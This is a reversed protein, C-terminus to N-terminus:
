RNQGAACKNATFHLIEFTEVTRAGNGASAFHSSAADRETRSLGRRSREALVNTAGMRRLDDVLRELSAYSVQARDVDVVPASFEAQELLPALAAAEIRPHVRPSAGAGTADAARMAARLRPLTDGGSMAGILLGGDQMAYFLLRLALPLANVTDLTGIAVILDHSNPIPAWADEVIESGGASRAFITGPDRIEVVSAYAKLRAPWHPGPCGLLLASEFRRGIIALRELCDEFVRDFLFM